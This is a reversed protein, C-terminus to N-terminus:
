ERGFPCRDHGRGGGLDELGPGVAAAAVAGREVVRGRLVGVYVHVCTVRGIGGGAISEIGGVPDPQEAAGARAVARVQVELDALAPARVRRRDVRQGLQLAPLGR